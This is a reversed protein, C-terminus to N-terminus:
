KLRGLVFTVVAQALAAVVLGVIAYLITNRATALAQPDGSSTIFRLGALMIVIVSGIGIVLALIHIYTTILGGQGVLPNSGSNPGTRAAEADKCVSPVGGPSAATQDKCVPSVVDVAFVPPQLASTIIGVALVLGVFILVRRLM